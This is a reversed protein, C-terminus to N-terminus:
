DVATVVVAVSPRDSLADSVAARVQRAVEVARHGAGVALEVRVHRRPLAEAAAPETIVVARGLTATLRTVGPVGLAVDAARGEDGEGRDVAARPRPEPGPAPAPETAADLLATARLDVDTVTLGLERTAAALAARLRAATAPLPEAAPSDVTAAFDATVRLPGPPLASPPAPVAAEEFEGPDAPAIRLGGPRVGAVRRAATLLVERAAREAIWAGDRRGGLPLLRGLGLQERVTRTWRDATTM